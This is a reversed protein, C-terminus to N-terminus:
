VAWVVSNDVIQYDSIISGDTGLFCLNVGGDRSYGVPINNYVNDDLGVYAYDLGTILSKFSSTHTIELSYLGDDGKIVSSVKGNVTPYVSGTGSFTMVGNSVTVAVGDELNLVPTFDSFERQDVTQTTSSGFVSRLFVNIGSEAYVANTVFITLVLACIISLQVGVTTFRWRKKKREATVTATQIATNDKEEEGPQELLIDGVDLGSEQKIEDTTFLEENILSNDLSNQEETEANNETNNVKEVLTNKVQELDIKKRKRKSSKKAKEFTLNCTNSPIELMELYQNKEKM